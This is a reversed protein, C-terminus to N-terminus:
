YHSYSRYIQGCVYQVVRAEYIIVLDNNSNVNYERM